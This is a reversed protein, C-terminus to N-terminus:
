EKKRPKFFANGARPTAAPRVAAPEVVAPPQEIPARYEATGKTPDFEAGCGPCIVKDAM